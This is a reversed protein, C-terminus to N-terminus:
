ISMENIRALVAARLERISQPSVSCLHDGLADGSAVMSLLRAPDDTFYRSVEKMFALAYMGCDYGNPQQRAGQVESLAFEPGLDRVM